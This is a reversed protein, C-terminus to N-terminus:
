FKGFERAQMCRPPETNSLKFKHHTQMATDTRMAASAASLGCSLPPTPLRYTKNLAKTAVFRRQRTRDMGFVETGRTLVDLKVEARGPKPKGQREHAEGGMGWRTRRDGEGGTIASPRSLGQRPTMGTM